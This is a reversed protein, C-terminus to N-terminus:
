YKLKLFITWDKAFITFLQPVTLTDTQFQTRAILGTLRNALGAKVSEPSFIAMVEYYEKAFPFSTQPNWTKLFIVLINCLHKLNIVQSIELELDTKNDQLITSSPPSHSPPPSHNVPM